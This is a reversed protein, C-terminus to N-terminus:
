WINKFTTIACRVFHGSFALFSNIQKNEIRIFSALARKAKRNMGTHKNTECSCLLTMARTCRTVDNSQAILYTRGQSCSLDAALIRLSNPPNGWKPPDPDSEVILAPEASCWCWFHLEGNGQCQKGANGANRHHPRVAILVHRYSLVGRVLHDGRSDDFWAGSSTQVLKRYTYDRINYKTATKPCTLATQKSPKESWQM